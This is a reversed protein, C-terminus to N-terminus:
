LHKRIWERLYEDNITERYSLRSGDTDTETWFEEFPIQNWGLKEAKQNVVTAHFCLVRKYPRTTCSAPFLLETNHIDKFCLCRARETLSAKLEDGPKSVYDWYEVLSQDWLSTNLVQAM